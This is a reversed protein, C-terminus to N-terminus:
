VPIMIKIVNSGQFNVIELKANYPSLLNGIRTFGSNNKNNGDYFCNIIQHKQSLEMEPGNNGFEMLIHENDSQLKISIEKNESDKLVYISNEIIENFTNSFDVYIADKIFVNDAISIDKKINHKFEMNANMFMLENNFLMSLNLNDSDESACSISKQMLNSTVSNIKACSEIVIEIDNISKKLLENIEADDSSGMLKELRFRLMESRGLVAALPSNMNHLFGKILSGIHALALVHKHAVGKFM